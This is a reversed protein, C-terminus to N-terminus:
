LSLIMGTLLFFVYDVDRSYNEARYEAGIQLKSKKELLWGLNITIRQDYEPFQNKAISLLAETSLILYAEGVDLSVGQLPFDAAFRYRFRHISNNQTFRQETRFRNGLRLGRNSKTSNYQQVLRLENQQARDFFGRFRYQIGFGVSQNDRIKLNSFHALDLQRITFETESDRLIFTRKALSFNHAYNDSVKYNVGIQPQWYGTLNEQACALYSMLLFLLWYGALNKTSFMTM